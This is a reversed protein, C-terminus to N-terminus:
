RLRLAQRRALSRLTLQRDPLRRKRRTTTTRPPRHKPCAMVEVSGVAPGFAQCTAFKGSVPGVSDIEHARGERHTALLPEPVMPTEVWGVSPAEAHVVMPSLPKLRSTPPNLEPATDHGDGTRQTTPFAADVLGASPGSAHFGM